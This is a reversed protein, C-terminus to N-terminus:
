PLKPLDQILKTAQIIQETFEAETGTYGQNLVALQYASLGDRYKQVNVRRPSQLITVGGERVCSVKINRQESM